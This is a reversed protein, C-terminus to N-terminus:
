NKNEFETEEVEEDEQVLKTIKKEASELEENCTKSIKVGEDFKKISDELSLDGIELEKVIEELSKINKEFENDEM